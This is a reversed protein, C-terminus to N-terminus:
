VLLDDRSAACPNWAGCSGCTIEEDIVQQASPFAFGAGCKRCYGYNCSM